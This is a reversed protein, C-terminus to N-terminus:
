LIPRVFMTEFPGVVHRRVHLRRQNARRQRHGDVIALEHEARPLTHPQTFMAIVAARSSQADGYLARWPYLHKKVHNISTENAKM